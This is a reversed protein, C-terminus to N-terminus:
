PKIFITLTLDFTVGGNKTDAHVNIQKIQMSRRNNEVKQLFRIMNDYSITAGYAPQLGIQIDIGLVGPMGEVAKAQTISTTTPTAATTPESAKNNTPTPTAAAAATKQGLTSSPFQIKDIIIGTEDGIRYLEKVAQAQDKSKPLIKSITENLAKYKDLDKRSKLYTQEESDYAVNDLKANILSISSKKMFSNGFYLMAVSGIVLIVLMSLMMYFTKKATM